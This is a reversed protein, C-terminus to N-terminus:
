PSIQVSNPLNWNVLIEDLSPRQTSTGSFEIRFQVYQGTVGADDGSSSIVTYSKTALVASSNAARVKYIISTGSPITEVWEVKGWNMDRYNCNYSNSIWNGSTELGVDSTVNINSVQPRVSSDSTYLFIRVDLTGSGLALDNFNNQADTISTADTRTTASTPAQWSGGTYTQWNSRSDTSFLVRIDTNSPKVNSITTTLWELIVAPTIQSTDKTDVYLDDTTSYTIPESVNINDLEPTTTGDSNLLARFKFTGSSALSNIYTNVTAADNAQAYSNDTTTWISGNWYKWTSGDDSSCHYKIGTGTPKTATETFSDLNTTFSFGTNPYINPNNQDVGEQETGSGSNWRATVETSSLEKNYILAEDIQGTFTASGTRGGMILSTTVQISNTLTNIGSGTDTSDNGDIYIKIGTNSSSGDYTIIVHHWNGDTVSGSSYRSAENTGSTNRLTFYIKGGTAIYSIFGKGGSYHTLIDGATTSTKIWAELSFSSTREFNAINGCNVYETSGDFSLGNNLKASVWNSDDMNQTTGDYGNPGVDPVNTGSSENLHWQAYVSTVGKLYAKDGSVTIKNSDYTYNGPTTFPWDKTSGSIAKLQANGDAVELKAGDSLTYEGATEYDINNNNDTKDKLRLVAADGVGNVEVTSDLTGKNFDTASDWITKRNYIYGIDGFPM